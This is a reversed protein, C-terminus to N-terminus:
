RKPFPLVEQYRTGESQYHNRYVQYGSWILTALWFLFLFLTSFLFIKKPRYRHLKPTVETSFTQMVAYPQFEEPLDSELKQCSKNYMETHLGFVSGARYLLLSCAAGVLGIFSMSFYGFFRFLLGMSVLLIGTLSLQILFAGWFLQTYLIAEDRLCSILSVLASQDLKADQAHKEGM